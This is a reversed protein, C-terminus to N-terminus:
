PILQMLVTSLPAISIQASRSHQLWFQLIDLTDDRLELAIIAQGTYTASQGAADLQEFIDAVRITEQDIYVSVQGAALGTDQLSTVTDATQGVYGLQNTILEAILVRLSRLSQEPESDGADWFGLSDSLVAIQDTLSVQGMGQTPQNTHTLVEYDKSRYGQMRIKANQSQSDIAVSVPFGLNLVADLDLQPEDREVLVIAILAQDAPASFQTTFKLRPQGSLKPLIISPLGAPAQPASPATDGISGVSPIPMLDVPALDIINRPAISPRQPSFEDSPRRDTTDFDQGFSESLETAQPRLASQTVSGDVTALLVPTQVELTQAIVDPRRELEFKPMPAPPSVVPTESVPTIVVDSALGRIGPIENVISLVILGSVGLVAGWILGNFFSLRM